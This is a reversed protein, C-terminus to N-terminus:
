TVCPDRGLPTANASSIQTPRRYEVVLTDDETRADVFKSCGRNANMLSNVKRHHEELQDKLSTTGDANVLRAAEIRPSRRLSRRKREFERKHPVHDRRLSGYPSAADYDNIIDQCNAFEPADKPKWRRSQPGDYGKYTVKYQYKGRIWRREVAEVEFETLENWNVNHDGAGLVSEARPRRRYFKNVDDLSFVNTKHM